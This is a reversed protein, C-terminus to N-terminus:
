RAEARLRRAEWAFLKKLTLRLALIAAFTGLQGWTHLEITRLLAGATKISLALVAGEALALRAATVGRGSVLRAAAAAVWGALVASGALDAAAAWAGLAPRDFGSM